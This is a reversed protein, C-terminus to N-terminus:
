KSLVGQPNAVSAAAGSAASRNFEVSPVIAGYRQLTARLDDLAVERLEHGTKSALAAAAGAAQGMAMCSAQVRFASHAEQDGCANRGAVILNRSGRPLLARLPITPLTGEALPRTDIGPGDVKHVDIPYFSYCVADPWLRGSIYDAHSIRVEGEITATERLGCETAFCDIRFNQLGPQSRLFRMLRLILARSELEAKTKGLSTSGDVGTVHVSNAGRGRLFKTVPNSKSILDSRKLQGKEVAKLFADEIKPLDLKELDYGTADVVLTGPQMRGNRSLPFGALEVANADGTCDVLVGCTVRRLGEKQCLTIKWQEGDHEAAALMTHFMLSVGSSMAKSDAIAAFAARNVRVQLRYHPRGRWDSFDPLKGGMESVAETVLEWGIGGIIQKGWAHFLGPFNVGNLVTTGGLIGSKEVLLTAAGARSAQIAAVIGATGGGIVIVDFDTKM